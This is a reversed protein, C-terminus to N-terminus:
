SPNLSMFEPVMFLSIEKLSFFRDRKVDIHEPHLIDEARISHPITYRLLGFVDGELGGRGLKEVDSFEVSPSSPLIIQLNHYALNPSTCEQQKKM